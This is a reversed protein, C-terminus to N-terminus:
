GNHRSPPQQGPWHETIPIGLALAPLQPTPSSTLTLPWLAMLRSAGDLPHCGGRVGGACSRSWAGSGLLHASTQGNGGASAAQPRGFLRAQEAITLADPLPGPRFQLM